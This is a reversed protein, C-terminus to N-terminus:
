KAKDKNEFHLLLERHLSRNLGVSVQLRARMATHMEGDFYDQAARLDTQKAIWQRAAHAYEDANQPPLPGDAPPAPTDDAPRTAPPMNNDTAPPMVESEPEPAKAARPRRAPRPAPAPETDPGIMAEIEAIMTEDTMGPIFRDCVVYVMRKLLKTYAVGDMAAFNTPLPKWRVTNRLPDFIRRCHRAAILIEDMADEKEHLWDCAEAVKTALSWAFKLQRLSRPQTVIAKVQADMKIAAFDSEFVAADIFLGIEGQRAARKRMVLETM